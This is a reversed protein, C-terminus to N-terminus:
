ARGIQGLREAYEARQYATDGGRGGRRGKDSLVREITAIRELARIAEPKLITVGEGKAATRRHGTETPPTALHGVCRSEHNTKEGRETAASHRNKRAAKIEDSTIATYPM